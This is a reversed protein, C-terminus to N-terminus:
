KRVYRDSITFPYKLKKDDFEAKNYELQIITNLTGQKAAYFLSIAASFPFAKNEIVNFDQYIISAKNVTQPEEMEVREVKMTKRNVFNDVLVQNSNQKLIYFDDKKIVDNDEQRDVILNGLATAQIAEFNIDFNFRKTLSDYYFVYYEKKMINLITISDKNMLVRAGQIGVASFTIWILSDKKIRINAKAKIDFESDKFQIKAKGSFNEFDIQRVELTQKDKLNWSIDSWKKSCGSFIIFLSLLTFLITKNM